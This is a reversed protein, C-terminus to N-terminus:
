TIVHGAAMTQQLAYYSPNTNWNDEQVVLLSIVTGDELSLPFVHDHLTEKFKWDVKAKTLVLVDWDSEETATGNARSGFLLVKADPVIEHVAAKIKKFLSLDSHM